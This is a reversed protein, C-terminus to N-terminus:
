MCLFEFIDNYIKFNMCFYKKGISKNEFKFIILNCDNVILEELSVDGWYKSMYKLWIRM